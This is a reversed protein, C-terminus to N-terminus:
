GGSREALAARAAEAVRTWAKQTYENPFYRMAESLKDSAVGNFAAFMELALDDRPFSSAAETFGVARFISQDEPESPAVISLAERLRANEAKLRMFELASEHLAEVHSM